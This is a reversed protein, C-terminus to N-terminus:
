KNGRTLYKLHNISDALQQMRELKQRHQENLDEVTLQLKAMATNMRGYDPEADPDYEPEVYHKYIGKGELRDYYDDHWVDATERTM